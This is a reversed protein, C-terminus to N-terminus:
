AFTFNSVSLAKPDVGVILVSHTADLSITAGGSTASMHSQLAAFDQILNRGISIVDQRPDFWLIETLPNPDGVLDFEDSAATGQIVADDASSIFNMSPAQLQTETALATPQKVDIEITTQAPLGTGDLSTIQLSDMGTTRGVYSLAELKTNVDTVSGSLVLSSTGNGSVNSNNPTYLLGTSTTLLVGVNTSQATQEDLALSIGSLPTEASIAASLTSPATLLPAGNAVPSLTGNRFLAGLTTYELELYSLTSPDNDPLANAPLSTWTDIVGADPRLIPDFEIIAAREMALTVWGASTTAGDGDYIVDFGINASRLSQALEELPEQWSMNWQIDAQVFALPAGVAAEYANAWEMINSTIPAPESDGIEVNPFVAKIAAVNVAVQSAVEAVSYQPANVGTYQSGSYYPSDMVVYQLDGGLSAIRAAVPGMGGPGGSFGEVGVGINSPGMPLMLGSIALAIHHQNLYSFIQELQEASGWVAEQTTIVFVSDASAASMWAAGPTFLDMYDQTGTQGLRQQNVPPIPSFWATIGDSVPSVFAGVIASLSNGSALLRQAEILQVSNIPQGTAQQCLNSLFSVAQPTGAISMAVSSLPAGAALSQLFALFGNGTSSGFVTDYVATLQGQYPLIGEVQSLLDGDVLLQEDAALQDNGPSTGYIAQYVLTLTQQVEAFESFITRIAGLPVGVILQETWAAFGIPDPNRGLVQQYLASIETQAEASWPAEVQQLTEGAALEGTAASLQTASLPQGYIAQYALTLKQQVEASNVLTTQATSLPMGAMLKQTWSTLEASSPTRGLVQQYLATIETQAEASWPAEVQQLTEGATLEGTATSLRTASLPQGYIARYALTLKQQAEASNALTTQATSLPAGAMLQQTWSALEASSPTRGLVQQYLATIEAQARAIWPAEVQQLTEGAALKETVTSLQTVWLLQRYIARYALTLKQQVEISNALTTRATTLSVGAMLQQTWSALETSSPARGLVQQYLATIETQAEASWPAEIQQLTEGAALEGTAASLQTASLPQGYIARYALTLKQQAEASNALTTQATSLPVSAMLQQTWSALEASSPIRGLVQQYLAIIEARARAIWPTEVQQLTEGAALEGTTASLQTASLPQGYIAQHALALTQQVEASESFITRIAGLPVGVILQETWAAFGIPDPNRGLVQQYLASIETQAEASWPAEVQQLTEGTALEGTAASLQTASLPQGYIARYALTLKQQAEASNALTTQATSLPVGAMLQQTWSALEASSPTRGLVQQYM